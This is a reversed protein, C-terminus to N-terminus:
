MPCSPQAQHATTTTSAIPASSPRLTSAARRHTQDRLQDCKVHFKVQVESKVGTALQDRELQAIRERHDQRATAMEQVVRRREEQAAAAEEVAFRKETKEAELQNRLLANWRALMRPPIRCM